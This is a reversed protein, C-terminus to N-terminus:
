LSPEYAYMASHWNGTLNHKVYLANSGDCSFFYLWTRFVGDGSVPKDTTPSILTLFGSPDWQLGIYSADYEITFATQATAFTQSNGAEFEGAAITVTPGTIDVLGWPHEEGWPFSSIDMLPNLMLKIGDGDEVRLIDSSSIITSYRCWDILQNIVRSRFGAIKVPLIQM